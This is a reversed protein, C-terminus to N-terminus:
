DDRLRETEKQYTVDRIVAVYFNNQKEIVPAISIEIPIAIDKKYNILTYNRLFINRDDKLDMLSFQKKENVVLEFLNKSILQEKDQGFLDLSAQNLDLIKLNNDFIVISDACNSIIANLKSNVKSLENTRRCFAWLKLFM